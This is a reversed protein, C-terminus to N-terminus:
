KLDVLKDISPPSIPSLWARLLMETEMKTLLLTQNRIGDTVFVTWAEKRSPVAVLIASKPSFLEVDSKTAGKAKKRHLLGGPVIFHQLPSAPSGSITLHNLLLFFPAIFLLLRATESWPNYARIIESITLTLLAFLIPWIWVLRIRRWIRRGIAIEGATTRLTTEAGPLDGGSESTAEVLNVFHKDSEDLSVPTFSVRLPEIEWIGDTWYLRVARQAMRHRALVKFENVLLYHPGDIAMRAALRTLASELNGEDMLSRAERFARRRNRDSVFVAGIIGLVTVAVLSLIAVFPSLLGLLLFAFLLALYLVVAIPVFVSVQLAGPKEAKVDLLGPPKDRTTGADSKITKAQTM